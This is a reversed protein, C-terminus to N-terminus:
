LCQGSLRANSVDKQTRGSPTVNKGSLVPEFPFQSRVPFLQLRSDWGPGRGARASSGARGQPRIPSGRIEGVLCINTPTQARATSINRTYAPVLEWVRTIRNALNHQRAHKRM